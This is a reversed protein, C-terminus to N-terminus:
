LKNSELKDDNLEPIQIYYKKEEYFGLKLNDIISKSSIFIAGTTSIILGILKYLSFNNNKLMIFSLGSVFIDKSNSLLQTIISSNKENSLFFTSNLIVCLICSLSIYFYLGLNNINNNHFYTYIQKHEGTIFILLILIPNILYSNYYLLKLNTFGTKERFNETFKIYIVTAINNLFVVFIGFFDFKMDEIGIILVGGTIM